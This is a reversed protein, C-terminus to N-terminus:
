RVGQGPSPTEGGAREAQVRALLMSGLSTDVLRPREQGPRPPPQPVTPNPELLGLFVSVAGGLVAGALSTVATPVLIRTIVQKQLIKVALLTPVLYGFGFLDTVKLGPVRGGLMWALAYKALFGVFFVLVVKRPGELNATRLPPLTLLARTLGVLVLVEAFTALLKGPTYWTLALLAPVLIGNYDWGYRLNFRTALLAACVLVIYTKPSQLFDLAVDEYTLELSSFSLNTYRLLVLRLVGYTLAVPIGVQFLGRGLGLKWFGNATLPVLVLGISFFGAAPGFLGGTRTDLAEGLAPLLLLECLLRVLVSCLVILFFRDRGFFQSWAQTRSLPGTLFAALAWTAVAEGVVIWGSRPHLIFISALYGPVVLGVFVWGFTETFFALVLVGVVVATLISNELGFEPFLPLM